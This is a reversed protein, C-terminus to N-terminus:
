HAGGQSKEITGRDEHEVNLTSQRHRQVQQQDIEQIQRKLSRLGHYPCTVNVTNARRLLTGRSWLPGTRSDLAIPIPPPVGATILSRPRAKVGPAAYASRTSVM